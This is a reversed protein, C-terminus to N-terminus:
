RQSINAWLGYKPRMTIKVDKAIKQGPVLDFHCRQIFMALMIKLELLAFNQGLCVHPGATFPVFAFPHSLKPKLGTTPDRMWRTYDFGLPRPWLDSRRHVAHVNM